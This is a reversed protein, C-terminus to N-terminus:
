SKGLNIQPVVIGCLKVFNLKCLLYLSLYVYIVSIFANLISLYCKYLSHVRRLFDERNWCVFIAMLDTFNNGEYNEVLNRGGIFTMLCMKFYSEGDEKCSQFYWNQKGQGPSNHLPGHHLSIMQNHQCEYGENLFKNSVALHCKDM